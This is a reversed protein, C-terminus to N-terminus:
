SPVRKTRADQVDELIANALSTRPARKRIVENLGNRLPVPFEGPWLASQHRKFLAVPQGVAIRRNPVIEDFTRRYFDRPSAVLASVAHRLALLRYGKGLEINFSRLESKFKLRRHSLFAALPPRAEAYTLPECNWVHSLLLYQVYLTNFAQTELNAASVSEPHQRFGLTVEPILRIDFKLAMRWWLDIDEIHLNFRYGGARIAKDVNLTVTPHCISPLYGSQVLERIQAPSGKTSRFQGVSEKPYYEALSYFMGAKPYRDIYEATRAIRNPYAVDDSDFRVLWPTEAEALMRNLTSTLGVNQQSVIRLRPDRISKLYELSGDTSGDNIALITFDSYTQQLISDLSQLLYPMANYVPIGVTIQVM